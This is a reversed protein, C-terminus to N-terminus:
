TKLIAHPSALSGVRQTEHKKKPTPSRLIRYLGNPSCGRSNVSVVQTLVHPDLALNGTVVLRRLVLLCLQSCFVGMRPWQSLSMSDLDDEYPLLLPCACQWQDKLNYPVPTCVLELLMAYAIKYGQKGVPLQVVEWEPPLPLLRYAHVIASPRAGQGVNVASYFRVDHGSQIFIEAHVFPGRTTEMIMTDYLSQSSGRRFAVGISHSSM